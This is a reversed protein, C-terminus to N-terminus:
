TAPNDNFMMHHKSSAQFIIKLHKKNQSQFQIFTFGPTGKTVRTIFVIFAFHLFTCLHLLLWKYAVYDLIDNQVSSEVCM